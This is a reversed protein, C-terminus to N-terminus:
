SKDLFFCFSTQFYFPTFLMSYRIQKLPLCSTQFSIQFAQKFILRLQPLMMTIAFNTSQSQSIQKGLVSTNKLRGPPSWKHFWSTSACDLNYWTAKLIVSLTKELSEWWPKKGATQFPLEWKVQRAHALFHFIDDIFWFTLYRFELYESVHDVNGFAAMIGLNNFTSCSWLSQYIWLKMIWTKVFEYNWM